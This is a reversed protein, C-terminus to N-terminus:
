VKFRTLCNSAIRPPLSLQQRPPPARLDSVFDAITFDTEHGIGTIIPVSCAAIARAVKEDNFAWLDEISGGGRALLIIDPQVNRELRELAAIIGPPAESGQVTTAAIVVDVCPFRRSITNLMDRIAAGTPSTIIGIKRPFRPIPKKQAPDFLGEMELLNKLRLFEQYLAGEGAPRLADAYLQYQGSVEYIGLKGHAEVSQGDKPDFKLQAVSTRWMVCRLACNTDKLTFYMHGSNPRALNSIEGLVWIDQLLDDSDFLDRLYRTIETISWLLRPFITLDLM